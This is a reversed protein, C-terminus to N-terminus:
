KGGKGASVLKNDHKTPKVLHNKRMFDLLKGWDRRKKVRSLCKTEDWVDLYCKTWSLLGQYKTRDLIGIFYKNLSVNPGDSMQDVSFHGLCKTRDLVEM